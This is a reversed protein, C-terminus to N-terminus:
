ITNDGSTWHLLKLPTFVFRPKGYIYNYRLSVLNERIRITKNLYLEYLLKIQCEFVTLKLYIQIVM